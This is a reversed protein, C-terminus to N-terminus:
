TAILLKTLFYDVILVAVSSVVVSQTTARGVGEAGGSTYYGKYCGVTAIIFGFVLSKILGKYIDEGDVYWEVNRIFVGEDYGLVKVVVLWAGFTGVINFVMCMVPLMVVSALIRPVVLYNVPNVAMALLADVQETVKMTGIEAAMASGARGAIMLASLVPSLELCLALVVTPGVFGEAGFLAFAHGSQLAFVMGTFTGSIVIIILSQWGVFEMQKFALHVRYPPRITWAMGQLVLYAYKGFHDLYGLIPAGIGSLVRNALGVARDEAALALERIEAPDTPPRPIV